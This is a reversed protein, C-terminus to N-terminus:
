TWDRCCLERHRPSCPQFTLELSIKTTCMSWVFMGGYLNSSRCTTVEPGIPIWNIKKRSSPLSPPIPTSFDETCLHLHRLASGRTAQLSSWRSELVGSKEMLVVMNSPSEQRPLCRWLTHMSITQRRSLGPLFLLKLIMKLLMM